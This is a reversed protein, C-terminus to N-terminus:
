EEREAPMIESVHSKTTGRREADARMEGQTETSSVPVPEPAERAGTRRGARAASFFQISEREKYSPPRPEYEPLCDDLQGDVSDDHNSGGLDVDQIKQYWLRWALCLFYIRLLTILLLVCVGIGDLTHNASPMLSINGLMDKISSMTLVGDFITFFSLWLCSMYVVHVMKHCGFLWVLILADILKIVGLLWDGISILAASKSLTACVAIVDVFVFGVAFLPIGQMSTMHAACRQLSARDICVCQWSLSAPCSRIRRPAPPPEAISEDRDHAHPVLNSTSVTQQRALSSSVLSSSVLSSSVLSSSAPWDPRHQDRTNGLLPFPSSPIASLPSSPSPDLSPPVPLTLYAPPILPHKRTRRPPEPPLVPPGAASSPGLVTPTTPELRHPVARTAASLSSIRPPSILPSPPAPSTPGATITQLMVPIPVSAPAPPRCPPATISRQSTRAPHSGPGPDLTPNTPLVEAVPSFAAMPISVSPIDIRLSSARRRDHGSIPRM